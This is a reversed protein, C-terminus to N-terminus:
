DKGLSAVLRELEIAPELWTKSKLNAETEVCARLDSILRDETIAKLQRLFDRDYYSQLRLERFIEPESRGTSELRKAKLQKQITGSIQYLIRFPEVGEALLRRLQRLSQAPNRSQLLRPFDFPNSAQRYGLCALVDEKNIRERGKTFLLLKELEAKLIGWETGSEQVLLRAADDELRTGAQAAGDHLRTVAEEERLPKFTVIGELAVAAAVLVERYDPKRDDLIVVLITSLLPDKLYDALAKRAEVGLRSNKVIVLRRESFMPPTLAASVVERIASASDVSFENLNFADPNVVSKLKQIFADKPSLEEGFLLYVPRFKGAIWDKEVQVPTLENAM